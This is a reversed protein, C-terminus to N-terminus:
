PNPRNGLIGNQLMERTIQRIALIGRGYSWVGRDVVYVRNNKVADLRSWVPSSKYREFAPNDEAFLMFVLASPNLAVLGELSVAYWAANNQPRTPVSRGLKEFMSGMLTGSSATTFGISNTGTGIIGTIISANQKTLIKAKAFLREQEAILYEALTAKGLLQGIKRTQVLLEDYTGNMSNFMITPAIKQLSEYIAKHRGTDAIILDPKLALIQELSPSARLGVVPTDKLPAFYTPLRDRALGIPQTGFAMLNDAFSLELTIIRKPISKVELTGLDHVIQMPAPSQASSLASLAVGGLVTALILKKMMFEQHIVLSIRNDMDQGFTGVEVFGADELCAKLLTDNSTQAYRMTPTALRNQHEAYWDRHMPDQAIDTWWTRWDKEGNVWVGNM